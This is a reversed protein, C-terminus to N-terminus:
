SGGQFNATQPDDAAPVPPFEATANTVPGHRGTDAFPDGPDIDQQHIMMPRQEAPHKRGDAAAVHRDVEAWLESVIRENWQQAATAKTANQEATKAAQAAQEAEALKKRGEAILRNGEDQLAAADATANSFTRSAEAAARKAQGATDNHALATSWIAELAADSLNSVPAEEPPNPLTAITGVAEPRHRGQQRRGPRRGNM